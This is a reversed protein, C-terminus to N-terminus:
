VRTASEAEQLAAKACREWRRFSSWDGFASYTQMGAEDVRLMINGDIYRPKGSAWFHSVGVKPLAYAAAGFESIDYDIVQSVSLQPQGPFYAKWLQKFQQTNVTYFNIKEPDLFEPSENTSMFKIDPLYKKLPTNVYDFFAVFALAQNKDDKSSIVSPDLRSFARLGKYVTTDAQIHALLKTTCFSRYAEKQSPNQLQTKTGWYAWDLHSLSSISIDNQKESLKKEFDTRSNLIKTFSNFLQNSIKEWNQMLQNFRETREEDLLLLANQNLLASACAPGALPKGEKILVGNVYHSTLQTHKNLSIHHHAM